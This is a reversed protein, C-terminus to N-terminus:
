PTTPLCLGAAGVSGASARRSATRDEPPPPRAGTPPAGGGGTGQFVLARATLRGPGRAGVPVRVRTEAKLPRRGQGALRHPRVRAGPAPNSGVIPRNVAAQTAEEGGQYAVQAERRVRVPGERKRPARTAM